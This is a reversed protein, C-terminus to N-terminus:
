GCGDIMVWSSGVWVVRERWLHIVTLVLQENQLAYVASLGREKGTRAGSASGGLHAVRHM